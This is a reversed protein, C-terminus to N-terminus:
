LYASNKIYLKICIQNAGSQLRLTSGNGHLAIM